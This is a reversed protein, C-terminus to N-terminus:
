LESDVDVRFTSTGVCIDFIAKMTPRTTELVCVDSQFFITCKKPDLGAALLTALAEVKWRRLAQPDQRSTIAHLDVISFYLKSKPAVSDQLKVWQQLAGFYNGLHPLGTPQIGSFIVSDPGTSLTSHLCYNELHFHFRRSIRKVFSVSRVNLHIYHCLSAVM